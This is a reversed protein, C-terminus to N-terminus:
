RRYLWCTLLSLRGELVVEYFDPDFHRFFTINDRVTASLIWPNQPAYAISGFVDVSGETRIMEGVIASLLSTKGCGVRGFVGILEGMKVELDIDELTSEVAERSWKFEGGKISVAHKDNMDDETIMTSSDEAPTSITRADTQLEPALLFKRMRSVSVSASILSTTVM